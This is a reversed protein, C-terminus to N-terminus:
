NYTSRTSGYSSRTGDNLGSRSGNDAEYTDFNSSADFGAVADQSDKSDYAFYDANVYQPYFEDRFQSTRVCASDGPMNDMMMKPAPTPSAQQSQDQAVNDMFEMTPYKAACITVLLAVAFMIGIKPCCYVVAALIAFMVFNHVKNTFLRLYSVPLKHVGFSIYLVFIALFAICMKDESTMNKFSNMMKSTDM